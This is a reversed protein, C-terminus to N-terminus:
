ARRSYQAVAWGLHNRLPRYHRDEGADPDTELGNQGSRAQDPRRQGGADLFSEGLIGVGNLDDKM